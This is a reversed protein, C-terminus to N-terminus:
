KKKRKAGKKRGHVVCREPGEHYHRCNNGLGGIYLGTESDCCLGPWGSGEDKEVTRRRNLPVPTHLGKVQWNVTGQKWNACCKGEAHAAEHEEKTGFSMHGCEPLTHPPNWNEPPTYIYADEVEPKPPCGFMGTAIEEVEEETMDPEPDLAVLIPFSLTEDDIRFLGAEIGADLVGKWRKAFLRSVGLVKAAVPKWSDVKLRRGTKALVAERVAHAAELPQGQLTWHQGDLTDKACMDAPDLCEAPVFAMKPKSGDLTWEEFGELPKDPDERVSSKMGKAWGEILDDIKSM